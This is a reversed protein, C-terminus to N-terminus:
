ASPGKAGALFAKTREHHLVRKLDMEERVEVRVAFLSSFHRILREKVESLSVERQLLRSLSTVGRDKIGCPHILRFFSLDGGVNLALGHFSIWQKVGVGIAM